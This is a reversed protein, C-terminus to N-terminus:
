KTVAEKSFQVRKRALWGAEVTKRLLKVGPRGKLGRGTGRGGFAGKKNGKM